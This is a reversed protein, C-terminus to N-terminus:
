WRYGGGEFQGKSFEAAEKLAIATPESDATMIKVFLQYDRESLEIRENRALIEDAREILVRETFETLSQQSLRAAHEIREKVGSDMRINFQVNQRKRPGSKELALDAM